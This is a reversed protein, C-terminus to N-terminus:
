RLTVAVADTFNSTPAGGALDRFWAQFHWTEGVQAPISVLIPTPLAQLDVPVFSVAGAGTGFAGGGVFRGIAGGLCLTGASGGPNVWLGPTPSALFFLFTDAPVGTASLLLNNAALVDSGVASIAGSAGSANVAAPGCYSAGVGVNYCLEGNWVRPAFPTGTFPINLASGGFFSLVGDGSSYAQNAGTGNTYAHASGVATLCVGWTGAPIRVPSAFRISTGVTAGASTSLGDDTAVQTWAAQNAEIGSFTGPALYVVVGVPTGPAASFHTSMGSLSVEQTATLDFYINGGVSGGNGAAFTTTLCNQAPPQVQSLRLEGSGTASNFGGVRILYTVGALGNWLVTSQLGCSDDNCALSTLANCDGSFVELASDYVTAGCTVLTVLGDVAPTFAYWLDSGGAACPWPFSTTAGTTDFPTSGLALAVAGSCEDNQAAALNVTALLTAACLFHRSHTM